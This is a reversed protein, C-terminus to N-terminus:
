ILRLAHPCHLVHVPACYPSIHLIVMVCPLSIVGYYCQLIAFWRTYVVYWCFQDFCPSYGYCIVDALLHCKNLLCFVHWLFPCHSEYGWVYSLLSVSIFILSNYKQACNVYDECVYQISCLVHSLM